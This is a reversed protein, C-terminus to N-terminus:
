VNLNKLRLQRKRERKNEAKTKLEAVVTASRQSKTKPADDGHPTVISEFWPNTVKKM